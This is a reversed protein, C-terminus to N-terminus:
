GALNGPPPAQSGTEAGIGHIMGIGFATRPGYQAINHSHELPRHTVLSRLRQWGRGVLAFVVMWRSRLQFNRGYRWLSYVIWLGLVLLPVGVIREMLPDFWAPLVGSAWFAM